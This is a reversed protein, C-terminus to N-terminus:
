QREKLTPPEIAAETGDLLARMQELGAELSAVRADVRVKDRLDSLMALTQRVEGSWDKAGRDLEGRQLKLWELHAAAEEEIGGDSLVPHYGAALERGLPLTSDAEPARECAV